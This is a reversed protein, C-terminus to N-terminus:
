TGHALKLKSIKKRQQLSFLVNLKIVPAMFHSILQEVPRFKEEALFRHLADLIRFDDQEPYPPDTAPAGLRKYSGSDPMQCYNIGVNDTRRIHVTLELGSEM